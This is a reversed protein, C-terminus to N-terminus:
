AETDPLLRLADQPFAVPVSDGVKAIAGGRLANQVRAILPTGDRLRM